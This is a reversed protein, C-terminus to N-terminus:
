PIVVDYVLVNILYQNIVILLDSHMYCGGVLYKDADDYPVM